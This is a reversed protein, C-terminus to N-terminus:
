NVALYKDLQASIADIESPPPAETDVIKGHKDMILYRPMAVVSDKSGKVSRTFLDRYANAGLFIHSGELDFKQVQQKWILKTGGCVYLYAIDKRHQYKEKLPKTFNQFEELCSGCTTGWFDVYVVKGKFNNNYINDLSTDAPSLALLSIKENGAFTTWSFLKLSTCITILVVCILISRGTLSERSKAYRRFFYISACLLLFATFGKLYMLAMLTKNSELINDLILTKQLATYHYINHTVSIMEDHVDHTWDVYHKPIDMVLLPICALLIAGTWFYKSKIM